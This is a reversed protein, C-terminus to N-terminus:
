QLQYIQRKSYKGLATQLGESVTQPFKGNILIGIDDAYGITYYDYDDLRLLLKDAAFAFACGGM